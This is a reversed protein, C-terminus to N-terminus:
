ERDEGRMIETNSGYKNNINQWQQAMAVNELPRDANLIKKREITENVIKQRSYFEDAVPAPIDTPIGPYLVWEMNRIKIVEPEMVTQIVGGRNITEMKGPSTVTVQPQNRMWASFEMDGVAKNAMAQQIERQVNQGAKALFKAKEDPSQIKLAEAKEQVSEVFGQRDKNWREAARDMKNMRETLKSISDGQGRVMGLISNQGRVLEQLALAINLSEANTGAVFKDSLMDRVVPDEGVGDMRVPSNLVEEERLAQEIRNL